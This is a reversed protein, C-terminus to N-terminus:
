GQYRRAPIGQVREGDAVDGLVVAGAAIVAARGISTDDVIVAGMGVITGAGVHTHSALNAGPLLSVFSDIRTHHGVLVGRSVLVHEAIVSEAGVIAGPGVVCGPALQASVSVCASPHIVTQPRWGRGSILGWHAHRDGGAAVVAHRGEAPAAPSLVPVQALETGVLVGDYLDIMATVRLGAARAWEAVEVAFSGSGALCLEPGAAAGGEDGDQRVGLLRFSSVSPASLLPRAGQVRGGTDKGRTLDVRRRRHV